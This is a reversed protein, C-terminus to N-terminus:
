QAVAARARQLTGAAGLLRELAVAPNQVRDAPPIGVGRRLAHAPVDLLDFSRQKRLATRCSAAFRGSTRRSVPCFRRRTGSSSADTLPADLVPLLCPIPRVM